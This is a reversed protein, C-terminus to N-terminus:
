TLNLERSKLEESIIRKHNIRLPTKPAGVFALKKKYKINLKKSTNVSM